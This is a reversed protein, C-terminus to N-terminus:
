ACIARGGGRGDGGGGGGLDRDGSGGGNGQGSQDPNKGGPSPLRTTKKQRTGPRSPYSAAGKYERAEEEEAAAEEEEGEEEERQRQHQDQEVVLARVRARARELSANMSGDRGGDARARVALHGFFIAFDEIGRGFGLAERSTYSDTDHMYMMAAATAMQVTIADYEVVQLQGIRKFAREVRAEDSGHVRLVRLLESVARERDLGARFTEDQQTRLRGRVCEREREERAERAEPTEQDEDGLAELKVEDDDNAVRTGRESDITVGMMGEEIDGLTPPPRNVALDAMRQLNNAADAEHAARGEARETAAVVQAESPDINLM